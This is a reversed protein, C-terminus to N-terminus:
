RGGSSPDHQPPAELGLELRDVSFLRRARKRAVKNRIRDSWPSQMAQIAAASSTSEVSVVDYLAVFREPESVDQFRRATLYGPVRMQVPVHETNYWDNFEEHHEAPVEYFAGHLIGARQMGPPAYDAHNSALSRLVSAVALSRHRALWPGAEACRAEAAGWEPSDVVEESELDFLCIDLPEADAIAQAARNQYGRGRRGARVGPVSLRAPLCVADFWRRWEDGWDEGADILEILVAGVGTM